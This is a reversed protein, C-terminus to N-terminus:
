NMVNSTSREAEIDEAMQHISDYFNYHIKRSSKLVVFNRNIFDTM